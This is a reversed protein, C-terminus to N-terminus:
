FIFFVVYLPIPPSHPIQVRARMAVGVDKAPVGRRGRSYSEMDFQKYKNVFRTYCFFNMNDVCFSNKKNYNKLLQLTTKYFSKFSNCLLLFM